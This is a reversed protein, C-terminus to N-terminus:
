ADAEDFMAAIGELGSQILRGLEDMAADEDVTLTSVEAQWVVIRNADPGPSVEFEGILGTVLWPSEVTSYSYFDTDGDETLM